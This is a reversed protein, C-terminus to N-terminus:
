CLSRTMASRVRVLDRNRRAADHGDMPHLLQSLYIYYLDDLEKKRKENAHDACVARIQWPQIDPFSAACLDITALWMDAVFSSKLSHLRELISSLMSQLSFSVEPTLRSCSLSLQKPPM